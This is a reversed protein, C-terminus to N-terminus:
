KQRTLTLILHEQKITLTENKISYPVPEEEGLILKKDNTVSYGMWIENNVNLTNDSSFVFWAVTGDRQVMKWKGVLAAEPKGGCGPFLLIVM